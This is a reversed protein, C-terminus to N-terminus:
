VGGQQALVDFISQEQTSSTDGQFEPLAGQSQQQVVTDEDFGLDRSLYRSHLDAFKTDQEILKVVLSNWQQKIDANVGANIDESGGAENRLLLARKVDDRYSLYTKLTYIDSRMGTSGDPNVAKSWIEPDDTVARLSQAARDYYTKDLSSYDKTWQENYYENDKMEGDDGIIRPSSLTQVLAQKQSKLDEAGPDDFSQLGRAFLDGYLGNMYSQYQRWGQGRKSEDFAERATMNTRNTIGSVGDASHTKEYYFAGNSYVGEGEAGVVLGAWQPGVKQILDQYYKSAYVAESTPKLGSNNKSMSQSFIYSSDGYKDYFKQDAGKPDTEQMQKYQDRFFQYPDQSNLSFPLVGAFISRMATWRSARDKIEGWTPQTKRMHQDYKFTEAQMIYFMSKQYTDNMEDTAEQRKMINPQLLHWNSQDPGMPLIGLKQYIDALKPDGNADMDTYPINNAAVQVIPGAGVPLAGDGHNLIIEATSMPIKLKANEDIGLAKNLAKGGLFDPVQFLINRDSYDVLRKEGTIPDTVTGDESVRNGGQDVVMGARTPAGYVQAVRPLIDPKDSIIRAWRNWSEQQAGFFAGFHRMNYAMKTEFDMNFTNKKVDDLAQMRASHELKQRFGEEIHTEGKLAMKNYSSKLHIKYRQAFLPHRLLKRAPIQNMVNYYGTMARDMLEAAPHNGKAYSLAQSNVMPRVNEPVEKLMDETVTGTRAAERFAGSNPFAPNLWEDVQATVRKVMENRPLNKLPASAAYARGEPTAALWTELQRPSKGGLHQVALADNSVQNNVVHLWSQMHKEAGHQAPTINEWDLRRMRDLYFDAQSGMLNRFNHDGSSLDRFLSGDKGGFAPAFIQRGIQLHQQAQGGKLLSDMDARTVRADEAWDVALKLDDELSAAKAADGQIKATNMDAKISAQLNALDELHTDLTAATAQANATRSRLFTGNAWDKATYRGGKITRDMVSFLGFRAIQGLGDDALARPGYGLRFLQAFKWISGAADALDVAKEWGTGVSNAAKQWSSGHTKIAKEFLDFDMMVHSNALQSMLVPTLVMKGGDAEIEAVRIQTGPVAPNDIMAGGYTQQKMSAQGRSRRSALERHLGDAVEHSLEDGTGVLGNKLNYRDVINHAIETEMNQLTVTRSQEDANLYRSVYMERAEKSLGATERLSADVQRWSQADNVDIYHSPRIDNYTHALRVVGGLSLNYINNVRASIFNEGKTPQFGRNQFAGKVRMGAPTTIRNYNLDGITNFANIKDTVIGSDQDLKSIWKTQQDIAAKIRVGRPSAQVAPSLSDYYSSASSTKSGLENAQYALQSNKFELTTLAAKDGMTVRLINAVDNKDTAQALLRATPAGNASKRLTPLDRALVAAATDPTKTKTSWITDVLGQFNSKQSFRDYALKNVDVPALTTGGKEIASTEKAIGAEVNQGFKAGKVAGLGKGALVLPDAYWSVAFDTAGTTWKSAGSGFYEQSRTKIGLPDDKTPTDRYKGESQLALDESIQDPRIGRAKLEKDNMGLMWLSQGPSVKHAYNWYDKMADWEGDQGIYEPRGYVLSHAAMGAASFAPSVTASYAQYLKSGVWEIPKFIPSDFMSGQQAARQEKLAALQQQTMDSDPHTADIGMSSWYENLSNRVPAPLQDMTGLGNLVGDSIIEMDKPSINGGM